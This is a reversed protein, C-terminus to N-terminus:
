SFHYAYSIASSQIYSVCKWRRRRTGEQLPRERGFFEAIPLIIRTWTAGRSSNLSKKSILPTRESPDIITPSSSEDEVNLPLVLHPVISAIPPTPEPVLESRVTPTSHGVGSEIMSEPNTETPSNHPTSEDINTQILALDSSATPPSIGTELIQTNEISSGHLDQKPEVREHGTKNELIPYLHDSKERRVLERLRGQLLAFAKGSTLFKKLREYNPYPKLADDVSVRGANEATLDVQVDEIQPTLSSLYRETEALKDPEQSILDAWKGSRNGDDVGFQESIFRAFQRRQQQLLWVVRKEEEDPGQAILDSRYKELLVVFQAEFRTRQAPTRERLAENYLPQLVDDSVLIALFQGVITEPVPENSFLSSLTLNSNTRSLNTSFIDDYGALASQTSETYTSEAYTSEDTKTAKWPRAEPMIGPERPRKTKGEWSSSHTPQSSSRSSSRVFIRKVAYESKRLGRLDIMRINESEDRELLTSEVSTGRMPIALVRDDVACPLIVFGKRYRDTEMYRVEVQLGRNTIRHGPTTDTFNVMVIQECRAFAAPSTSLISGHANPDETWAFISLDDTQKIIEEQLRIFARRGEGYLSPMHVGFLGMLSYAMDEPRTTQRSAAWSMRQAVNAGRLPDGLLFNKPIGTINSVVDVLEKKTGVEVWNHNLFLVEAPALLEQLTWGRTFWKCKSLSSELDDHVVTEAPLDELYAYCVAANRYWDFMSNIAETLEASSTKDICCTDVWAYEFGNARAVSCLSQIKVYGNKIKAFDGKIMDQYSLEESGWTHSLIAYSPTEGTQAGEFWELRLTTTNLLRM